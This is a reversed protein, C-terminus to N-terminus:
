FIIILDKSFVNTLPQEYIIDDNKPPITYLLKWRRRMIKIAAPTSMELNALNAVTVRQSPSDIGKPNEMMIIRDVNEDYYLNGKKKDDYIWVLTPFIMPSIGKSNGMM